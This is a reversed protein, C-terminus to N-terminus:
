LKKWIILCFVGHNFEVPDTFCIRLVGGNANEITIIHETLFNCIRNYEIDFDLGFFAVSRAPSKQPLDNKVTLCRWSEM